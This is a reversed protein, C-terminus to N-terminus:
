SCTMDDVPCPEVATGASADIITRGGLPERLTVETGSACDGRYSYVRLRLRVEDSTEEVTVSSDQHCHWGVILTRDDESVSVHSIAQDEWGIGCGAGFLVATIAVAGAVAGVSRM